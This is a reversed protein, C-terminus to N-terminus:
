QRVTYIDGRAQEVDHLGNRSYVNQSHDGLKMDGGTVRSRALQYSYAYQHVDYGREGLYELAETFPQRVATYEQEATRTQAQAASIQQRLSKSSPSLVLDDQLQQVSYMSRAYGDRASLFTQELNNLKDMREGNLPVTGSQLQSSVGVASSRPAVMTGGQNRVVRTDFTTTTTAIGSPGFSDFSSGGSRQSRGNANSGSEQMSESVWVGAAAGAVEAVKRGNGGGIRSGIAGGIAGGLVDAATRKIQNQSQNQAQAPSTTMSVALAAVLTLAVVSMRQRLPEHRELQLAASDVTAAYASSFIKSPKSSM